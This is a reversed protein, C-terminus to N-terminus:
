LIVFESVWASCVPSWLPICYFTNIGQAVHQQWKCPNWSGHETFFRLSCVHLVSLPHSTCTALATLHVCCTTPSAPPQLLQTVFAKPEASMVHHHLSIYASTPQHLSTYASTPPSVHRVCMAVCIHATPTLLWLWLEAWQRHVCFAGSRASAVLLLCELLHYCASLQRGGAQWAFPCWQLYTCEHRSLCFM